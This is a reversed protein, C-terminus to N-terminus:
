MGDSSVSKLAFFIAPSLPVNHSPLRTLGGASGPARLAYADSLPAVFICLLVRHSRFSCFVPGRNQNSVEVHRECYSISPDAGGGIPDLGCGAFMGGLVCPYVKEWPGVSCLSLHAKDQAVFCVEVSRFSNFDCGSQLQEVRCCLPIADSILLLSVVPFDGFVQFSFLLSTFLGETM